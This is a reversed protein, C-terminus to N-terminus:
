LLVPSAYSVVYEQLPVRLAELEEISQCALIAKVSSERLGQMQEKM